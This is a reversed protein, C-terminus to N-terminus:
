ADIVARIAARRTAHAHDLAVRRETLQERYTAARDRRTVVQDAVQTPAPSGTISARRDLAEAPDRLTEVAATSVTPRDGLYAEAIAELDTATVDTLSQDTAEYERVLIAVIQHASRWPIECQRTLLAALDTALAWEATVLARARDTDFIMKDVVARLTDLTETFRRLTAPDYQVGGSLNKVAILQQVATGLVANTERQVTQISHPNKKQPMISSTGCLEHPLDALGFEDSVWLFLTDAANGITAACTAVTCAVELIQDISKDVDEANECVADFGLLSAVRERDIDFDTTTGAAAGAPSQNLRDWCAILRPLDRTLPFAQSCLQYGVTGVQAHQLGTYTPMPVSLAAEARSAYTEVLKVLSRGVTLLRDRLVYRTTVASLDHSSRGTHLWGGVTEGYMEILHAEGSHAGHGISERAPVPDGTADELTLLGELLQRGITPPLLGQEHLM